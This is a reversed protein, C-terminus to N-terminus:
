KLILHAADHFSRSSKGTQSIYLQRNYLTYIQSVYQFFSLKWFYLLWHSALVQTGHLELYLPFFTHFYKIHIYKSNHFIYEGVKNCYSFIHCKVFTMKFFFRSLYIKYSHFLEMAQVNGNVVHSSLNHWWSFSVSQVHSWDVGDGYNVTFTMVWQSFLVTSCHAPPHPLAYSLLM